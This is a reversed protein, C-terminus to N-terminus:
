LKILKLNLYSYIIYNKSAFDFKLFKQVKLFLLLIAAFNQAFIIWCRIKNVIFFLKRHMHVNKSEWFACIGFFFEFVCILAM